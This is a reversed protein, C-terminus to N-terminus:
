YCRTEECRNCRFTEWWRIGKEARGKTIKNGKKPKPTKGKDDNGEDLMHADSKKKKSTTHSFEGKYRYSSKYNKGHPNGFCDDWSHKGPHLPCTNNGLTKQKKPSSGGSNGPSIRPTDTKRKRETREASAAKKASAKEQITMYRKLHDLTYAAAVLDHGAVVFSDRWADPMAQFLLEKLRQDDFPVAAAAGPMWTMLTNLFRYRSFIKSVSLAKPKRYLEMYRRQDALDTGEIYEAIFDDRATRFNAVTEGVGTTIRDWDERATDGLCQRFFSKLLTGTNLDLRSARAADQFEDVLRLVSEVDEGDTLYPLRADRKETGAAGGGAPAALTVTRKLTVYSRDEDMVNPKIPIIPNGNIGLTTM